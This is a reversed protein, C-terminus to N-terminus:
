ESVEKLEEELDTIENEIESLQEDFYDNYGCRYAIPDVQELVYSANYELNGIKVTGQSDIMNDYQETAWDENNEIDEKKEKLEALEEKIEKIREVDKMKAVGM